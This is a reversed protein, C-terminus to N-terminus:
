CWHSWCIVNGRGTEIKIVIKMFYMALPWWLLNMKIDCFVSNSEEAGSHLQAVLAHRAAQPVIVMMKKLLFPCWSCERCLWYKTKLTFVM